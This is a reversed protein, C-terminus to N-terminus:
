KQNRFLKSVDKIEKQREELYSKEVFKLAREPGFMVGDFPTAVGDIMKTFLICTDNGENAVILGPQSTPPVVFSLLQGKRIIMFFQTEGVVLGFTEDGPIEASGIRVYADSNQSAIRSDSDARLISTFLLCLTLLLLKM